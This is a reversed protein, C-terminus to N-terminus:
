LLNASIRFLTFTTYLSFDLIKELRCRYQIKLRCTHELTMKGDVTKRIIINQLCKQEEGDRGMVYLLLLLLLLLLEQNSCRM